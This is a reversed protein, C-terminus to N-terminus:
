GGEVEIASSVTSDDKTVDWHKAETLASHMASLISPSLIELDHSAMRQSLEAIVEFLLRRHQQQHWRCSSLTAGASASNLLTPLWFRHQVDGQSSMDVTDTGAQTKTNTHAQAQLSGLLAVLRTFGQRSLSHIHHKIHCHQPHQHDHKHHHHHQGQQQHQMPKQATHLDPTVLACSLARLVHQTMATGLRGQRAVALWYFSDVLNERRSSSESAGDVDHDKEITHAEDGNCFAVTAAAGAEQGLRGALRQWSPSITLPSSAATAAAVAEEDEEPTATAKIVEMPASLSDTASLAGLDFLM